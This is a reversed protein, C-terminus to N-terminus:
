QLGSTSRFRLLVRVLSVTDVAAIEMEAPQSPHTQTKTRPPLTQVSHIAEVSGLDSRASLTGYTCNVM